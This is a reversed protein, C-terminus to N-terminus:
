CLSITNSHKKESEARNRKHLHTRQLSDSIGLVFDPIAHPALYCFSVDFQVLNQQTNTSLSPSSSLSTVLSGPKQGPSLADKVLQDWRTLSSVLRRPSIQMACGGEKTTVSVSFWLDIVQVCDHHYGSLLGLGGQIQPGQLSQFTAHQVNRVKQM